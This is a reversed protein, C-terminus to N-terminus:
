CSKKYSVHKHALPHHLITTPPASDKDLFFVLLFNSHQNKLFNQPEDLSFNGTSRSRVVASRAAGPSCKDTTRQRRACASGSFRNWTQQGADLADLNEEIHDRILVCLAFSELFVRLNSFESIFVRTRMPHSIPSAHKMTQTAKM